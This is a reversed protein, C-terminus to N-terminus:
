CISFSHIFDWSGPGEWTCSAQEAAEPPALREGRRPGAEWVEELASAVRHVSNNSRQSDAEGMLSCAEPLRLGTEDM